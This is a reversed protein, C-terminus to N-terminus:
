LQNSCYIYSSGEFYQNHYSIRNEILSIDVPLRLIIEEKSIQLLATPSFVASNCINKCASSTSCPRVTHQNETQRDTYRLYNRPRQNTLARLLQERIPQPPRVLMHLLVCAYKKSLVIPRMELPWIDHRKQTSSTFWNWLICENRNPPRVLM